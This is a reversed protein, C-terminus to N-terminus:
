IGFIVGSALNSMLHLVDAHLSLATITRWWQGDCNLGAQAAGTAAWDVSLAHRREAGFSSCCCPAIPWRQMSRMGPRDPRTRGSDRPCTRATRLVRAAAGSAPCRLVGRLARRRLGSEDSPVRHRCCGSGASAAQCRCTDQVPWSRSSGDDPQRVRSRAETFGVRQDYSVRPHNTLLTINCNSGGAAVASERKSRAARPSRAALSPKTLMM